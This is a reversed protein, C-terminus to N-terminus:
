VSLRQRRRRVLFALAAAPIALLTSPEPTALIGNIESQSVANDYIRVDAIAGQFYESHIDFQRGLRTGTGLTTTSFTAHTGILAGDIYFRAQAVDMVLAYQHLLGDQNFGVGSSFWADSLRMDAAGNTGIYFGNGSQGQSIMEM